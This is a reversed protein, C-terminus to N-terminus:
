CMALSRHGNAVAVFIELGGCGYGHGLSVLRMATAGTKTPQPTRAAAVSAGSGAALVAVAGISALLRSFPVRGHMIAEM